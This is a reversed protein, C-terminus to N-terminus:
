PTWRVNPNIRGSWLVVPKGYRTRMGVIVNHLNSMSGHWVWYYSLATVVVGAGPPSISM